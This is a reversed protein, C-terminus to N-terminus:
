DAVVGGILAFLAGPITQCILAAAILTARQDDAVRDRIFLPVTVAQIGVGTGAVISAAWWLRYGMVAFPNRSEEAETGEAPAAVPAPAIEPALESM